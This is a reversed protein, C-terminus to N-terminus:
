GTPVEIASKRWFVIVFVYAKNYARDILSFYAIRWAKKFLLSCFVVWLSATFGTGLGFYFFMTEPVKERGKQNGNHTSNGNSCNRPLPPGCLDNNGEYMSPNETYLTDLQRGPPITGTFNNYSLDLYSLYTLDSISTPIEGFLHNRSLDVSELSKMAGIKEPIKGSLQNWSLNLNLLGNLCTIDDPIGGILSNHSLDIGIMQFIGCGYKLEQRKMVVSFFGRFKGLRGNYWTFMDIGPRKPHEESMATLKSLSQPIAGSIKNGALNLYRLRKLNTINAPVDGYFTNHSLQLFRLYVLNGIWQPLRGYFKNWALDVFALNSCSQLLSPFNGPLHNNRLLLFVLNQMHFCKPLEGELFNNSLDLLLLNQLECISWPIHGSINNSFLILGKISPAGFDLPLPGSLLNMSIDLMTLGTPLTPITGTFHNNSLSLCSLLICSSIGPPIAGTISNNSLDLIFLNTLHRLRDALIRFRNHEDLWLKELACLDKLDVAMTARNGNRSFDFERLSAMSELGNPFPGYLYTEHLFLSVLSTANWFWCSAIPYDLYNMSLDLEMLNTLNESHALQQNTSPLLCHRLNLVQLTPITNMVHYWDAVMSLNVLSMDLYELLHLHTLWSIDISYANRMESLNLYQLNSLNGLHPPVNGSLWTGSLDLYELKSLNGLFPPVRGSFPIFALDLHRLNGMSGLFEPVSSNVGQLHSLDLHELHELSLLSPSIQGVLNYCESPLDLKVVYGTCNSCTVGAWRCCDTGERWSTLFGRPDSTIGHKFALLADQEDPACSPSGNGAAQPQQKMQEHSLLSLSSCTAAALILLVLGRTAAPRLM